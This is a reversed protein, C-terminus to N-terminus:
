ADAIRSYPLDMRMHWEGDPGHRQKLLLGAVAERDAPDYRHLAIVNDASKEIWSSEGAAKGLLPRAKGRPDDESGRLQAMELVPVALDQALAKLGRTAHAVQEHRKETALHRSPRLKQVYDVIVLGLPRRQHERRTRAAVDEVAGEEDVVLIPWTASVQAADVLRDREGHHLHPDGRMAMLIRKSDVGSLNALRRAGLEDATMEGASFVLVPLGQAAVAVSVHAAVISKGSGTAGILTTKEGPHLGGTLADWGPIGTSVGVRREGRGAMGEALRRCADLHTETTQGVRARALEAFAAAHGDLWPQLEGQDARAYGEAAARQGLLILSRRRWTDHVARAYAVVNQVHSAVNLVEIVYGSGGVQELRSTARLRSIVTTPEVPSGSRRLELCAEFIRRHREAYFHEPALMDAIAPLAAPDVMVSSLVAGEADLDHPPV